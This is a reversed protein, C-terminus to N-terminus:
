QTNEVAIRLGPLYSHWSHNVGGLAMFRMTIEGVAAIQAAMQETREIPYEQAFFKSLSGSLFKDGSGHVVTMDLGPNARAAAKLDNLLPDGGKPGRRLGRGWYVLDEASIKSAFGEGFFAPLAELAQQKRDNTVAWQDIGFSESSKTGYRSEYLLAALIRSRTLDVVQPRGNHFIRKINAGAIAAL